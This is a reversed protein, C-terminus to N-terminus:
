SRDLLHRPKALDANVVHTRLRLVQEATFLQDVTRGLPEGIPAGLLGEADGAAQVISAACQRCAAHREDGGAARVLQM